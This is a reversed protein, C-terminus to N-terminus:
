ASTQKPNLPLFNFWLYPNNKLLIELHTLVSQFHVRASRLNAERNAAPDPSFLSSAYVQIVDPTATPVATCFIVPRNFLVALHYITFPFLRRAGLFQFPETKASYELRDCKLALSQGSEIAAKLDFLLTAPDNIWLFSVRAGFRKGLAHTDTSNGVQLRVVSVRRGLEGLLYGLLDSEGFHFTGFLAPRDSALLSDFVAQNAPDMLCKVPAGRGSRLMLVLSEAFAFFHRWIEGWRPERGLAVALYTRSHARQRPLMAVAVWTGIMLLPRFLWRPCRHEAWRILGIGWSPGPNRTSPQATTM